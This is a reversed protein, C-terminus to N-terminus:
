CVAECQCTKQFSLGVSRESDVLAGGALGNAQEMRNATGHQHGQAYTSRLLSGDSRQEMFWCRVSLEHAAGLVTAEDRSNPSSVPLSSHRASARYSQEM